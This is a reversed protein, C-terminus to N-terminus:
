EEEKRAEEWRAEADSIEKRYYSLLFEAVEERESYKVTFNNHEIGEVFVVAPPIQKNTYFSTMGNLEKVSKDTLPISCVSDNPTFLVPALDGHIKEGQYFYNYYKLFIGDNIKYLIGFRFVKLTEKETGTM